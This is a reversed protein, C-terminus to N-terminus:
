SNKLRGLRSQLWHTRAGHRDDAIAQDRRSREREARTRLGKVIAKMQDQQLHASRYLEAASQKIAEFEQHLGELRETNWRAVERASEHLLAESRESRELARHGYRQAEAALGAQVDIASEALRVTHTARDLEISRMEQVLGYLVALRRLTDPRAHM